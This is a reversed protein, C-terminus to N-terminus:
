ASEQSISLGLGGQLVPPYQSSFGDITRDYVAFVAGFGSLDHRIGLPKLDTKPFIPAM